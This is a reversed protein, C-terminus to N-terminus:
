LVNVPRANLADLWALTFTDKLYEILCAVKCIRKGEQGQTIYVRFRLKGIRHCFDCSDSDTVMETFVQLYEMIVGIM